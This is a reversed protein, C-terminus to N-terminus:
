WHRKDHSREIPKGSANRPYVMGIHQMSPLHVVHLLRTLDQCLLATAFPLVTPCLLSKRNAVYLVQYSFLVTTTTLCRLLKRLPHPLLASRINRCSQGCNACRCQLFLLHLRYRRRQFTSRAPLQVQAANHNSTVTRHYDRHQHPTAVRHYVV